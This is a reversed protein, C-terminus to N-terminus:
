WDDKVVERGVLFEILTKKQDDSLSAAQTQMKGQTLAFYITDSRMKKLTDFAPARTAEPNNHCAACTKDYLAQGPHATNMSAQARELPTQANVTVAALCTVVLPVIKPAIHARLLKQVYLLPQM